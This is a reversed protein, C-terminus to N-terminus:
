FNKMNLQIKKRTKVTKNKNTKLKLEIFSLNDILYTRTRVKIRNKRQNHHALYFDFNTTDYYNTEYPMLRMNSIELVRYDNKIKTLLKELQNQRLLFKTDTRKLLGVKDMEALTIAELQNIDKLIQSM